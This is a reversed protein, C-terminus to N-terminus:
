KWNVTGCPQCEIVKTVKHQRVRKSGCKPCELSINVNDINLLKLQEQYEEAFRLLDDHDHIPKYDIFVRCNESWKKYYEQVKTM